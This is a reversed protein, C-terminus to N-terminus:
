WLGFTATNSATHIQVHNGNRSAIEATSVISLLDRRLISSTWNGSFDPRPSTVMTANRVTASRWTQTNGSITANIAWPFSFSITTGFRTIREELTIHETNGFLSIGRISGDRISLRSDVGAIGFLNTNFNHWFWTQLIANSNTNPAVREAFYRTYNNFPVISIEGDEIVEKHNNILYDNNLIENKQEGIGFLNYMREDSINIMEKVFSFDFQERSENYDIVFRGQRSELTYVVETIHGSSDKYVVFLMPIGQIYIIDQNVILGLTDIYHEEFNVISHVIDSKLISHKEQKETLESAEMNIPIAGFIMLMALSAVTAKKLKNRRSLYKM